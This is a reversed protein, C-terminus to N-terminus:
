CPFYRNIKNNLRIINSINGTTIKKLKTNLVFANVFILVSSFKVIYVANLVLSLMHDCFLFTPINTFMKLIIIDEYM